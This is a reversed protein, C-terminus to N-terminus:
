KTTTTPTEGKKESDTEASPEAATTNDPPTTAQTEVPAATPSDAATATTLTAAQADVGANEAQAPAVTASETNVIRATDTSNPDSVPQHEGAPRLWASVAIGGIITLLLAIGILAILLEKKPNNNIADHAM